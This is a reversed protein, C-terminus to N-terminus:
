WLGCLGFLLRNHWETQIEAVPVVSVGMLQGFRLM